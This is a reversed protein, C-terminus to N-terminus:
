GSVSSVRSAMKLAPFGNNRKLMGSTRLARPQRQRAARCRAAEARPPRAESRYRRRNGSRSRLGDGQEGQHHIFRSQISSVLPPMFGMSWIASARMRSAMSRPSSLPRGPSPLGSCSSSSEPSELPTARRRGCGSFRRSGAVPVGTACPVVRPQVNAAVVVPFRVSGPM